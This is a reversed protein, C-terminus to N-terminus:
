WRYNRGRSGKPTACAIVGVTSCTWYIKGNPAVAVDAPLPFGFSVMTLKNKSLDYEMVRNSGGQDEPGVDGGFLGPTPLETFYLYRGTQDIAIGNPQELDLLLKTIVGVSSRRLIVGATKCTWYAAGNPALVIDTPEPEVDSILTIADGNTASVMNLGVMGPDPVETFLAEGYRNFTLGSPSMLRDEDSTTEPNFDKPLYPARTKRYRDYKLIVGATKCTWYVNSRRDLAIHIPYPEGESILTSEGSRLDLRKVTNGAGFVGPDPVESYYLTRFSNTAIGTPQNLESAVIEIDFARLKPASAFASASLAISAVLATAIPQNLKLRNLVDLMQNDGHKNGPEPHKSGSRLVPHWTPFRHECLISLYVEGNIGLFIM